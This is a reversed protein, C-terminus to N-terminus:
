KKELFVFPESFEAIGIFVPIGEKDTPTTQKKKQNIRTQIEGKSGCKIGSIELRADRSSFPLESNRYGLWYDIGTRKKAREIVTFDTVKRFLVFIIGCAAHETLEEEDRWSALMQSSVTESWSFTYLVSDLSFDKFNVGSFHNQTHLRVIAAQKFIAALEPTLGPMGNVLDNFDCNIIQM